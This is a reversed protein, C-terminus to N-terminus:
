TREARFYPIDKLHVGLLEALKMATEMRPVKMGHVWTWVTSPHFGHVKILDRRNKLILKQFRTQKTITM